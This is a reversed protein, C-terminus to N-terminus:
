YGGAVPSTAAPPLHQAYKLRGGRGWYRSDLHQRARADFRPIADEPHGLRFAIRADWWELPLM